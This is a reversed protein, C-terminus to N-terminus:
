GTNGAAGGSGYDGPYHRGSSGGILLVLLLLGVCSLLAFILKKAMDPTLRQGCIDVGFWSFASALWGADMGHVSPDEFVSKTPTRPPVDLGIPAGIGDGQTGATAYLNEEM